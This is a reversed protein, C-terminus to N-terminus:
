VVSKRDTVKPVDDTFFPADGFNEVMIGDFGAAAIALADSRARDLVADMSGGYGPAGPLPDLHVMGVLRPLPM